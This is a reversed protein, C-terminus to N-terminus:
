ITPDLGGLAADVARVAAAFGGDFMATIVDQDLGSFNYAAELELLSLLEARAGTYAEHVAEPEAFCEPHISHGYEAYDNLVSQLAADPTAFTEYERSPLMMPEFDDSAFGMLPVFRGAPARRVLWFNDASM